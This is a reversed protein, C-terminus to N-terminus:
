STRWPTSSAGRPIRSRPEQLANTTSCRRGAPCAPRTLDFCDYQHVTAGTRRSIDCGWGDYGSIGYSYGATVSGLLNGCMLYGGDHPEGFRELECNALAVPQLQEFLHRRFEEARTPPAARRGGPPDPRAALYWGGAALM